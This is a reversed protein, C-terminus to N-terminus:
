INLCIVVVALIGFIVYLCINIIKTQSTSIYPRNSNPIKRSLLGFSCIRDFIQVVYISGIHPSSENLIKYRRKFHLLKDDDLKGAFKPYMHLYLLVVYKTRFHAIDWLVSFLKLYKNWRKFSKKISKVDSKRNVNLLVIYKTLDSSFPDM